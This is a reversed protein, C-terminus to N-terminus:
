FLFRRLARRVRGLVRRLAILVRRVPYLGVWLWVYLRYGRHTVTYTKGARSFGSVVAMVQGATVTEPEWQNDGCCVFEKVDRCRVIRHLVYQGNERRYLILDGKKLPATIVALKVSDRRNYLMPLMSVGTVTLTAEGGHDLQLQLLKALEEMPIDVARM